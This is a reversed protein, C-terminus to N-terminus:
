VVGACLANVYCYSRAESLPFSGESPGSDCAGAGTAVECAEGIALKAPAPAPQSGAAATTTTTTTASSPESGSICLTAHGM